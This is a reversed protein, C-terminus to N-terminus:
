AKRLFFVRGKLTPLLAFSFVDFLVWLPNGCELRLGDSHPPVLYLPSSICGQMGVQVAAGQEPLLLAISESGKISEVHQGNVLVDLKVSRGFYGPHRYLHIQM